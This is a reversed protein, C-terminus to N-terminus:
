YGCKNKVLEYCDFAEVGMSNCTTMNEKYNKADRIAACLHQNVGNDTSVNLAFLIQIFIKFPIM